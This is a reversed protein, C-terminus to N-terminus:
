INERGNKERKARQAEWQERSIAMRVEARGFTRRELPHQSPQFGVKRYCQVAARNAAHCSLRVERLGMEGFGYELLARMASTGYGQGQASREGIMIGLQALGEGPSGLRRLSCTGIARGQEEEIVFVRQLARNSLSSAIRARQQEVNVPAQVLGLYRAVEPDSEWLYCHEADDLRIPRLQAKMM